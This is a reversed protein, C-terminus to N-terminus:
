PNLCLPHHHNKGDRVTNTNLNYIEMSKTLKWRGCEPNQTFGSCQPPTYDGETVDGGVNVIEKEGSQKTVLGFFNFSRTYKWKPGESWSKSELDFFFMKQHWHISPNKYMKHLIIEM